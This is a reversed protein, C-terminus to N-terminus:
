SNGGPSRLKFNLMTINRFIQVSRLAGIAAEEPIARTAWARFRGGRLVDGQTFDAPPSRGFVVARLPPGANANNKRQPDAKGGEVGWGGRGEWVGVRGM